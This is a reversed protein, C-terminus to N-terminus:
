IGKLEEERLEHYFCGVGLIALLPAIVINALALLQWHWYDGFAVGTTASVFIATSTWPIINEIMTGYDEISRSLVKRPVRLADFKSKFADGVIFSTASQNSTSANTFLAAFLSALILGSRTTVFGFMKRVISPMADILDLSGIFVFVMITFIIPENLEYLGGRNFLTAMAETVGGANSSMSVDFGSILCVLIDGVGFDQFVLALLIASLSSVMLVPLPPKRNLSGYLVILPPLLLFVNFNFLQSIQRTVLLVSDTNAVLVQPPSVFGMVVFGAGAILASPITTNAMSRIHDYLDVETAIAAINTTDSLPSMKDGFYAGGIIAGATIGLDAQITTAVGIIVVGVTGVSGWSTGTMLSFLIPVIFAIIYIYSPNIIKVGWYVLMPMTGSIIWSGIIIGIAFLIMIAPFGRTIKGLVATQIDDWAFGMFMLQGISFCSALLFILELPLPNLSLFHPRFILGYGILLFLFIMPLLQYMFHLEPVSDLKPEEQRSTGDVM